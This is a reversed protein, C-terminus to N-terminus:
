FNIGVSRVGDALAKVRGHYLYGGRDFVIKDVGKEKAIKGLEEGVKTAADTKNLKSAAGKLAQAMTSSSAVVKGELDEILQAYIHKNSRFVNLRLREPTGKIKKRVRVQRKQRSTMKKNVVTM